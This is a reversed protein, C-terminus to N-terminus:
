GDDQMFDKEGDTFRDTVARPAAKGVRMHHVYLGSKRAWPRGSGSVTVRGRGSGCGSRTLQSRKRCPPQTATVSQGPCLMGRHKQVPGPRFSCVRARAQLSGPPGRNLPPPCPVLSPSTIRRSNKHLPHPPLHLLASPSSGPGLALATVSSSSTGRLTGKLARQNHLGDRYATIAGVRPLAVHLTPLTSLVM